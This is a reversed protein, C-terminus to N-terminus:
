VWTLVYALSIVISRELLTYCYFINPPLLNVNLIM